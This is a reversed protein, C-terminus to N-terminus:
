GIYAWLHKQTEEVAASERSEVLVGRPFLKRAWLEVEYGNKILEKDFDSLINDDLVEPKKKFFWFYAPCELYRVFDSKTIPNTIM